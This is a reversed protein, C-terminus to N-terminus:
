GASISDKIDWIEGEGRVKSLTIDELVYEKGNLFLQVAPGDIRAVRCNERNVTIEIRTKGYSFRFSYEEWAGPICPSLSLGEKRIRLGAFGYIVAMYTGAMNATHIGDKTNGHTNFLDMKASDGFYQYAKRVMGLRAAMISFICTSLSSDHTTIQEYYLFSNRVTTTKQYEEFMFHSLVTDAQKCVQRRYLALPHYHLLLPYNEEPTTEFDWKKKMLFSDDQPNIDLTRSYPLLMCEAAREFEDLESEKLGIRTCLEKWQGQNELIERCKCAWELNFKALANTYYNNNVMCTYEDPGTVDQIQFRGDYYNGTDIWLRATEVIIEAGQSCMFDIDDTALYYFVAAYAVDGSIHYAATGSPFYGSCEEGNITRWPYLAGQRHGLKRANEKAKELTQYRFYLLNKAIEPYILAFSPIAYIETDWFYHGEYGEGSLGKAAMNGFPDRGASQLLAYQNFHVARNLEDDGKITLNSKEWFERLYQEQERYLVDVPDDALAELNDRCTQILNKSRLSDETWTYKYFTLRQGSKIDGSIIHIIETEKEEIRHSYGDPVLHWVGTCVELGSRSTKALIFSCEGQRHIESINLYQMSKDAVRPDSPDCYNQVQGIHGSRITVHGNYNHSTVSIEQLFLPRRIFSTMRKFELCLEHGDPSLWEIIRGTIGKKMDAYRVAKKVEGDFLSFTTGGVDVWIGQTDAVNLMTQKEEVLGYLSEAQKMDTIDYFGNIYQGRISEFGEPYGEEFAGRVGIYGNANHFLTEDLMLEGNELSIEKTYYLEQNM